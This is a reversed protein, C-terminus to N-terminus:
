KGFIRHGVKQALSEDNYLLALFRELRFRETENPYRECIAQWSLWRTTRVLSNVMQLRKSISAERLLDIQIREAQRDTDSAPEKM